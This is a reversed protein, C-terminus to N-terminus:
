LRIRRYYLSFSRYSLRLKKNQTFLPIVNTDAFCTHAIGTLMYYKLYESLKERCIYM